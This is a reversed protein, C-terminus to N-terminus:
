VEPKLTLPRCDAPRVYRIPPEWLTMPQQTIEEDSECGETCMLLKLAMCRWVKARRVQEMDVREQSHHDCVINSCRLWQDKTPYLYGSCQSWQGRDYRLESCPRVRFWEPIEAKKDNETSLIGHGKGKRQRLAM